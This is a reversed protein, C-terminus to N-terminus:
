LEARLVCEHEMAAVAEVLYGGRARRVDVPQLIALDGKGFECGLIESHRPRAGLGQPPPRRDSLAAIRRWTRSPSSPGWRSTVNTFAAGASTAAPIAAPKSSAM